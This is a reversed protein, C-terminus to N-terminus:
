DPWAPWVATCIVAQHTSCGATQYEFMYGSDVDSNGGHGSTSTWDSCNYVYSQGYKKAGTWACGYLWEPNAGTGVVVKKGDFSYLPSAVYSFNGSYSNFLLGWSSHMQQEHTNMTPLSASSGTHLGKLTQQSTALFAAFEVDYGADKGEQACLANAAALGGLDGTHAHNLAAIIIRRKACVSDFCLGSVCDDNAKCAAAAACKSFTSSGCDVDTEEGNKVGDYDTSPLCTTGFCSGTECDSGQECAEGIPCPGCYGGCDVDTEAGDKEDNVECNITLNKRYVQGSAGAITLVGSSSVWADNWHYFPIDTVPQWIGSHKRLVVGDEGVAIYGHQGGDAVSNVQAGVGAYEPIWNTGDFRLM